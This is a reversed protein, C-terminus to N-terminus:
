RNIPVPASPLTAAAPVPALPPPATEGVPRLTANGALPPPATQSPLLAPPVLHRSVQDLIRASVAEDGTLGVRVGIRTMTGEAPIPSPVQDLYIRVAHGDNTTTKIFASSTDTKEETIPFQLEILSSRVAAMGDSLNAHYDRYLLGNYYIYGAAAGAGAVGAVALLCGTNILAVLALLLWGAWRWKRRVGDM